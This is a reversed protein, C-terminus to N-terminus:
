TATCHCATHLALLMDALDQCTDVLRWHQQPVHCHGTVCAFMVRQCGAEASGSTCQLTTMVLIPMNLSCVEYSLMFQARMNGSDGAAIRRGSAQAHGGQLMVM